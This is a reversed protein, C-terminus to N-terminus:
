LTSLELFNTVDTHCTMSISVTIKFFVIIEYIRSSIMILALLFLVCSFYLRLNNVFFVVNFTVKYATRAPKTAYVIRIRNAIIKGCTTSQYLYPIEMRLSLFSRKSSLQTIAILSYVNLFYNIYYFQFMENQFSLKRSATYLQRGSRSVTNSSTPYVPRVEMSYIQLIYARIQSFRCLVVFLSTIFISSYLQTSPTFGRRGYKKPYFYVCFNIYLLMCM